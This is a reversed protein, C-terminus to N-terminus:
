DSSAPTRGTRWRFAVVFLIVVAILGYAYPIWGPKSGHREQVDYVETGLRQQLNNILKPIPMHFTGSENAAILNGESDLLAMYPINQFVLERDTLIFNREEWTAVPWPMESDKIYSHMAERSRDATVFIFEFEPHNPKTEKYFEVLTPNLKRCPACWSAGFYIVFYEIEADRPIEYDQLEGTEVDLRQLKGELSDPFVAKASSVTAAFLIATAISLKVSPCIIIPWINNFHYNIPQEISSKPRFIYREIRM